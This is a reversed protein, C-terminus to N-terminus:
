KYEETYLIHRNLFIAVNIESYPLTRVHAEFPSDKTLKILVAAFYVIRM